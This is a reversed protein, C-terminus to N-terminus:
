HQRMDAFQGEMYVRMSRLEDMLDQMTPSLPPPPQAQVEPDQPQGHIQSEQADLDRRMQRLTSDDIKSVNDLVVNK